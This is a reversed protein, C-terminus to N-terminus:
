ALVRVKELFLFMNTKDADLDVQFIDYLDSGILVQRDTTASGHYRTKVKIDLSKDASEAFDLDQERKTAESYDLKQIKVIDDHARPNRVARFDSDDAVSECIYLVGHNYTQFRSKIM